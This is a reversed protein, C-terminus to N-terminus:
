ARNFVPAIVRRQIRWHEGQRVFVDDVDAISAPYTDLRTDESRFLTLLFSAEVSAADRVALIINSVVHRTTVNIQKSRALMAVGIAAGEITGPKPAREGFTLRGSPTFLHATEDARGHDVLWFYRHIVDVISEQDQRDPRLTPFV